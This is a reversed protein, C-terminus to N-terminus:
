FLGSIRGSDDVDIDLATPRKPLGPMTMIKGTYIVVFGAGASVRAATVSIRYGKPCGSLKPNDSLSSPTKAVCIPLNAYGLNTIQKIQREAEPSFDVADAGYLTEALCSVKDMIPLDLDYLFTFEAPTECAAAVLEALELGGDGGLTFLPVSKNKLNKEPGARSGIRLVAGSSRKSKTQM